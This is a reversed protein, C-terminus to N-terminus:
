PAQNALTLKRVLAAHLEFGHVRACVGGFFGRVAHLLRWLLCGQLVQKTREDREVVAM